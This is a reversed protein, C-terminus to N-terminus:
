ERNKKLEEAQRHIEQYYRETTSPGTTKKQEPKEEPEKKVPSFCQRDGDFNLVIGHDPEGNKNKALDLVRRGSKDKPNELYLLMIVDADQEIQGSERLDSMTPAKEDDTRRLQSLAIITKGTRRATQQLDDSVVSVRQFKDRVNPAPMKQLYDPM